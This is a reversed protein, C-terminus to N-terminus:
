GLWQIAEEKTMFFHIGSTCEVRIDDDYSDAKVIEGKKYILDNDRWGPAGGEHITGNPNYVELVKIFEARCKRGILSSTRKAEAPIEIKMYHESGAKYAIFSGEQPTILFDPLSAGQLNAGWLDARWLDARQLSAGRLNAEQLSAGQLNAERLDAEQLNARWLDAEQLDARQLNAGRLNVGRLDARWLDARQLNAGRLNVGRLDAREGGKNALWLSHLELVKDLEKQNM